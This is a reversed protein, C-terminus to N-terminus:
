NNFIDKLVEEDRCTRGENIINMVKMDKLQYPVATTIYRNQVCPLSTVTWIETNKGNEHM